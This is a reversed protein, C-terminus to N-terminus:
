FKYVDSLQFRARPSQEQKHKTMKSAQKPPSISVLRNHLHFRYFLIISLYWMKVLIAELQIFSLYNPWNL